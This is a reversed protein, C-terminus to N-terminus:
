PTFGAAWLTVGIGQLGRYFVERCDYCDKLAGHAGETSLGLHKRLNNMSCKFRGNLGWALYAINTTDIIRHREAKEVNVGHQKLASVIFNRDFHPGHGIWVGKTEFLELLKPIVNEFPVADAWAEPTYGNVALAEPEANEIHTPFTRQSWASLITGPRTYPYPVSEVLVAVDLIEHQTHDLGTSEIDVYIRTCPERNEEV